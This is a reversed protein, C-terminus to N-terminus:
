ASKNRKKSFQTSVVRWSLELRFIMVILDAEGVRFARMGHGSILLYLSTAKGKRDIYLHPAVRLGELDSFSPDDETKLTGM